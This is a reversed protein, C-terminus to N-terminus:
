PLVFTIKLKLCFFKLRKKITKLGLICEASYNEQYLKTCTQEQPKKLGGLMKFIVPGLKIFKGPQLKEVKKSEQKTEKKEVDEM